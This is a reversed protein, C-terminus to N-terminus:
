SHQALPTARLIMITGTVATAVTLTLVTWAVTAHLKRARPFSEARARWARIGLVIPALYSATTLKALTLHFPTIWGASPLDYLKGLQFAFYITVGLGALASLVFAVHMRRRHTRGALVALALSALTLGFFVGFGLGPSM